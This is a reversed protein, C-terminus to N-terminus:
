SMQETYSRIHQLIKDPEDYIALDTNKIKGENIMSQLVPFIPRDETWYKKDMFVMPSSVGFSQYHNQALDQFIEQMTGASGPTFIVGGKAIALLGEERVSNAFYKAIHTAFPTPPEHGYHWTPIGLSQYPSTPYKNLVQFATSLWSKDTYLPAESLINLADEKIDDTRGALWAGVHTAEMAGPGGGSIMLYGEMTLAGSIKVIQRYSESNRSMNHGGMIAVVKHSDYEHIFEQLADTISHDHLSKTLTEKINHSDKAHQIYYNYIIKDPTKEYTVPNDPDFGEFLTEKSYLAKPYIHYPVKIDPFVYNDQHLWITLDATMKCGLFLCESFKVHLLQQEYPVLDLQQVAINELKDKSLLLLFDNIQDIELM